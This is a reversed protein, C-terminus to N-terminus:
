GSNAFLQCNCILDKAPKPLGSRVSIEGYKCHVNASIMHPDLSPVPTRVM